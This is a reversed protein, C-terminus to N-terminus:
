NRSIENPSIQIQYNDWHLVYETATREIYGTYTNGLLAISINKISDETTYFPIEFTNGYVNSTAKTPQYIFPYYEVGIGTFTIYYNNGASSDNREIDSPWYVNYNYGVTYPFFLLYVSDPDSSHTEWGQFDIRLGEGPNFPLLKVLTDTTVHVNASDTHGIINNTSSDYITAYVKYDGACHFMALVRGFGNPDVLSDCGNSPSVNWKYYIGSENYSSDTLPQQSSDVIYVGQNIAVYSYGPFQYAVYAGDNYNPSEKQNNSVNKNCSIAALIFLFFAILYKTTQINMFSNKKFDSTLNYLQLM